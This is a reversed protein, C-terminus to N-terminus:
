VDMEAKNQTKNTGPVNQLAYFHRLNVFGDIVDELEPVKAIAQNYVKLRQGFGRL